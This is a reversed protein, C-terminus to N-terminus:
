IIMFRYETTSTYTCGGDLSTSPFNSHNPSDPFHQTELCVATRKALPVGGKGPVGDMFNGTYLQVGPETTFVEICRGSTTDSLKGCFELNTKEETNDMAIVFNHDYGGCHKLQVDEADILEGLTRGAGTFDFPTGTVSQLEGTPILSADVPTFEKCNLVLHHGLINQTFDGTLNFYSHNTINVVTAKPSRNEVSYGIKLVTGGNTLSYQVTTYVSGPYGEEGDTSLYGFVVTPEGVELGYKLVDWNRNHWGLSGGHLANPGNNISPLQVTGVGALSFSGKAIRNAYRGVVCGYFQNRKSTYGSFDEPIDFGVVVDCRNGNRDPTLIKTIYCGYSVCEVTIGRPAKGGLVFCRVNHPILPLEEVFGEESAAAPRKLAAHDVSGTASRKM